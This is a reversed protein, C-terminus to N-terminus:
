IEQRMDRKSSKNPLNKREERIIKKLFKKKKAFLVIVFIGDYIVLLHNVKMVLSEM